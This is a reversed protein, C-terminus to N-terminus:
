INYILLYMRELFSKKFYSLIEKSDLILKKNLTPQKGHNNNVMVEMYNFLRCKADEALKMMANEVSNKLDRLLYYFQLNRNIFLDVYVEIFIKRWHQNNRDFGEFFAKHLKKARKHESMKSCNEALKQLVKTAPKAFPIEEAAAGLTTAVPSMNVGDAKEQDLSVKVITKVENMTLDVAKKVFTKLREEATDKTSPEM